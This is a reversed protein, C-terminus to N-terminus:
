KLLVRMCSKEQEDPPRTSLWKRVTLVAVGVVIIGAGVLSYEDPYMRLFIIQWIFAFIVDFARVLSVPGASDFKLAIIIAYQALFASIPLAGFALLMDRTGRPFELVQFSVAIILCEAM